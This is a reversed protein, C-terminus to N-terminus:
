KPAPATLSLHRGADKAACLADALVVFELGTVKKADAETLGPWWFLSTTKSAGAYVRWERGTATVGTPRAFVPNGEPHTLRVVLCLRKAREGPAVDVEHEELTVSDIDITAGSM